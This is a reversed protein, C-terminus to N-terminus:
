NITPCGFLVQVSEAGTEEVQQCVTGTLVVTPPSTTEDLVWGNGSTVQPIRVGDVLVNLLRLDPPESTLQQSCTTVLTRTINTLVSTLGAVGGSADVQYYKHAGSPVAEGGSVAFADLATAYAESGPIGVVFTKVGASALKKVAATTASDDLCSAGAAAAGGFQPDCCNAAGGDPSKVPCLGDLNLVCTGEGCSLTSNCDPGGDTALLVYKDGTLSKGAGTTLYDYARGLALATPTGGGPGMELATAITPATTTGVDIPVEIGPAAPMECCNDLCSVSIPKSVDAPYPFLELGFALDAKTADVAAGLASKMATWKDTSFGAPTEAMSGSRDIVLLVNVNRPKADVRSEGCSGDPGNDGGDRGVVEIISGGQGVAQGGSGGGSSGDRTGSGGGGTPAFGGSGQRSHSCAITGLLAAAGVAFSKLAARRIREKM